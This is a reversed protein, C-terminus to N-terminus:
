YAFRETHIHRKGLGGQRLTAAVASMMPPPGCLLVERRAFDPVLARLNADDVFGRAMGAVTEDSLIYHVVGGYKASLADLERRFAIDAQTRAAYLLVVSRTAEPLQELMARLPTIGIGGAILLLDPQSLRAPTFNGHPGDLSVLTGPRLHELQRTFDGLMKVTLRLHKGGNPAESLSFPHAQWWLEPSLFRWVVFQGSTFHFQDLHRGTIYISVVTPTERVVHDVVFRHKYVLYASMIFRYWAMLGFAAAYLGYWFLRFAPQGVFDSGVSLQHSFALLIAVYSTVHVYYWTEYKLRRRVITISIFVIAILMILGITAKLVDEWGTQFDLFQAIIGARDILAFGLTLFIGHAILLLLAAYGNWKHFKALVELGFANELLTLRSLLVLQWLISYTGLLGTVNGTAVEVSAVAWTTHVGTIRWWFLLIAVAGAVAIGYWIAQALNYSQRKVSCAYVPLSLFAQSM